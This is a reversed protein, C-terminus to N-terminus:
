APEGMRDTITFEGRSVQGVRQVVGVVVIGLEAVPQEGVLDACGTVCATVPEHLPDTSRVPPPAVEALWASAVALRDSRGAM